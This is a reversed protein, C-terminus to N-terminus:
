EPHCAAFYTQEAALVSLLTHHVHKDSFAGVGVARLLCPTAYVSALPYPETPLVRVRSRCTPFAIPTPM